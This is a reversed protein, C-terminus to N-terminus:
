GDPELTQFYRRVVERYALPVTERDVARSEEGTPRVSSSASLGLPSGDHGGINANVQGTHLPGSQVEGFLRELIRLGQPRQFGSDEGSSTGTDGIGHPSAPASPDSGDETSAESPVPFGPGSEQVPREGDGTRHDSAFSEVHEAAHRGGPGQSLSVQPSSALEKTSPITEGVSEEPQSSVQEGLRDSSAAIRRLVELLEPPLESESIERSDAPSPPGDVGPRVPQVNEPVGAVILQEALKQIRELGLDDSAQASGAGAPLAAQARREFHSLLALAEDMPLTRDRLGAQLEALDRDLRRLEPTRFDAIRDRLTAIKELTEAEQPDVVAWAATPMPRMMLGSPLPAIWLALLASAAGLWALTQRLTPVPAPVVARPDIFRAQQDADQLLWPVLPSSRGSWEIATALRDKLDLRQDALRALSLRDLPPRYGLAFALAAICGFLVSSVLAPLRHWGLRIATQVLTTVCGAILTSRVLLLLLTIRRHRRGIDALKKELIQSSM